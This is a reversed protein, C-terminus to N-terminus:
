GDRNIHQHMCRLELLQALVPRIILFLGALEGSWGLSDVKCPFWHDGSIEFLSSSNFNPPTLIQLFKLLFLLFPVSFFSNSDSFYLLFSPEFPYTKTKHGLERSCNLEYPHKSM